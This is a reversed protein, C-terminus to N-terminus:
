LVVIAHEPYYKVESERSVGYISDFIFHWLWAISEESKQVPRIGVSLPVM